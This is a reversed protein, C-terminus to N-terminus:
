NQLNELLKLVDDVYIPKALFGRAGMDIAKNATIIDEQGTIFYVNAAPDIEKLYGFVDEGDIGPLLIDLFVCDPMNERYIRLGEEGSVAVFVKYGNKEIIKGLHESAYAEDDIILVSKVLVRRTALIV